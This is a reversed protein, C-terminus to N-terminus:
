VLQLKNTIPSNWFFFCIPPPPPSNLINQPIELHPAKNKRSNRPTLYLFLFNWGPPNEFFYTRRLGKGGTQKKKRSYGMRFLKKKVFWIYNRSEVLNKIPLTTIARWTLDRLNHLSSLIYTKNLTKMIQNLFLLLLELKVSLKINRYVKRNILIM